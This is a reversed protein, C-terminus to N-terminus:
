PSRFCESAANAGRSLSIIENGRMPISFVVACPSSNLSRRSENGRMPISFTLIVIGLVTMAVLENGRM